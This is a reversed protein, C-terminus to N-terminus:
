FIPDGKYDAPRLGKEGIQVVMQLRTYQISAHPFWETCSPQMVRNWAKCQVCAVTQCPLTAASHINAEATERFLMSQCLAPSTWKGEVLPFPGRSAMEAFSCTTLFRVRFPLSFGLLSVQSGRSGGPDKLFCLKWERTLLQSSPCNQEQRKLNVNSIHVCLETVCFKMVLWYKILVLGQISDSKKM